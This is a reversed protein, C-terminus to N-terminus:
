VGSIAADTSKRCHPSIPPSPVVSWFSAGDWSARPQRTRPNPHTAPAYTPCPCSTSAQWSSGSVNYAVWGGWLIKLVIISASLAGGVAGAAVTATGAALVGGSTVSVKGWNRNVKATECM